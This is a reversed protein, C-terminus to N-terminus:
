TWFVPEDIQENYGRHQGDHGAERDCTYQHSVAGCRATTTGLPVQHRLGRLATRARHM